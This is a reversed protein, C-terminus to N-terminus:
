QFKMQIDNLRCSELAEQVLKVGLPLAHFHFLHRDKYGGTAYPSSYMQLATRVLAVRQEKMATVHHLMTWNGHAPKAVLPSSFQLESFMALVTSGM